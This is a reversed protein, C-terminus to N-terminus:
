IAGPKKHDHLFRAMQRRRTVRNLSSGDVVAREYVTRQLPAPLKNWEGVLAEGLRELLLRDHASRRSTGHVGAQPMGAGGEAEWEDIATAGEIGAGIRPSLRTNMQRSLRRAGEAVRRSILQAMTM